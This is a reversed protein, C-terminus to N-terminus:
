TGDEYEQMVRTHEDPPQKLDPGGQHAEHVHNDPPAPLRTLCEASCAFVLLPLADTAVALTIWRVLEHDPFFSGACVSCRDPRVQDLFARNTGQRLDPFPSRFKYNGYLARTSVRSEVLNSCRTLEYPYWHLQYSTYPIFEELAAMQGIEPPLRRLDSGYLIFKRVKTLRGISPPLTFLGTTDEGVLERAPFFEEWGEDAARDILELLRKWAPLSTDQEETHFYRFPFYELGWDSQSKHCKCCPLSM